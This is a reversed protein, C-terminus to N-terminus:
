KQKKLYVYVAGEGGDKIKAGTFSLICPRIEANNLWKPLEVRLKGTQQVYGADDIKIRGKGTVILVERLGNNYSSFIFDRVKFFAKDLTYGHLDLRAEIQLKGKKFREGLNKDLSKIDGVSLDRKDQEKVAVLGPTEDAGIKIKPVTKNLNPAKEHKIKQVTKALEQWLFEDENKQYSSM